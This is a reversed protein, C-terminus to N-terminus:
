DWAIPYINDSDSPGPPLNITALENAPNSLDVVKVSNSSISYLYKGIRVNRVAYGSQSVTGVLTIGSRTIKLVYTMAEYGSFNGHSVPIALTQQEPFWAFAHHDTEAISSTWDFDQKPAFTFNALRTPNASDAVDFLSVQLGLRHGTDSAEQGVGIMLHDDIPNLYSSFGPMKLEGTVKPNGPDSLDIVFLPDVQRFTVMYGRDGEFRTSYIQESSALGVLAGQVQLADGNQALVMVNNSADDWRGSTTAIRLRGAEEDMSFENLVTGPVQGSAVLDINKEGLHFEYLDTRDESGMGEITADQRSSALYLNDRSIYALGTSGVIAASSGIGLKGDTPDVSVISSMTWDSYNNGYDPGLYLTAPNLLAGTVAPATSNTSTYSPSLKELPMAALRKRYAAESEYKFYGAV